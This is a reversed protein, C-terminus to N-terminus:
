FNKLLIYLQNLYIKFRDFNEMTFSKYYWFLAYMEIAIKGSRLILLLMFVRRVTSKPFDPCTECNGMTGDAWQEAWAVRRPRSCVHAFPPMRRNSLM